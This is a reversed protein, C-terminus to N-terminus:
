RSAAMMAVSGGKETTKVSQSDVVAASPNPDRGAQVRVQRRVADTVAEWIGDDLYRRHYWYVTQWKPLDHPLARWHCGTRTVYVIANWIERGEVTRPRGRCGRPREPPLLPELVAWQADTLDSPYPERKM